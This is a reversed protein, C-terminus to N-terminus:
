NANKGSKLMQQAHKRLEESTMEGGLMRSLEEVREKENLVKLSTKTRGQLVTKELLIHQTARAAILPSHTVCIVQQCCSIKELKEAVKQSAKGSIGADIEDFILTGVGDLGAFITKLALAIRSLEGGSAIKAMPLLPEGPNPSILFVAQELGQPGAPTDAFSIKFCSNVMALEALEGTVKEELTLALKKRHVTLDHCKEKYDQWEKDLAKELEEARAASKKWKELENEAKVAFDLIEEISPGYKRGLDKILQLRKEARDLKEPSYEVGEQFDRLESAAEELIYLSPELQEAIKNLRRDLKKIEALHNLSKALLDYASIKREGGFLAGYAASLHGSIKEANALLTAERSLEELEGPKLKAEKIEQLQYSIFDIRQLREQEKTRIEDLEQMTKHWNYYCAKVDTVTELHSAGGFRDLIGLHKDSQLLTQHDHQGHIDVLALGIQRFQNLTVTRGNIRCINRGNVAIERSLVVSNDGGDLGWEELMEQLVQRIPQGPDLCFVGELYAKEQGSRIFESQARGGLVVSVADIVISKGAGTEGTLVNFAGHFDLALEEILAFNKIYLRELM